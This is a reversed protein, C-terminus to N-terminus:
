RPAASNQQPQVTHFIAAAKGALPGGARDGDLWAAARELDALAPNLAMVDDVHVGVKRGLLRVVDCATAGAKVGAAWKRDKRALEREILERSGEAPADELHTKM